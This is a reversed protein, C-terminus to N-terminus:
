SERFYALIAFNAFTEARWLKQGQLIEGRYKDVKVITCFYIPINGGRIQMLLPFVHIRRSKDVGNRTEKVQLWYVTYSWHHRGPNQFIIIETKNSNLLIKNALLWNNLVMNGRIWTCASIYTASALTCASIHIRIQSKKSTLFIWTSRIYKHLLIQLTTKSM